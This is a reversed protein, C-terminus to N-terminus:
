TRPEPQKHIPQCTARRVGRALWRAAHESAVVYLVSGGPTVVAWATGDDKAKRLRQEADGHAESYGFVNV